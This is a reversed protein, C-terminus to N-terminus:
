CQQHAGHRRSTARRSAPLDPVVGLGPAVPQRARGLRRPHRVSRARGAASPRLDLPRRRALRRGTTNQPGREANTRILATGLASSITCARSRASRNTRRCVPSSRCRSRTSTASDPSTANTSCAPRWLRSRTANCDARRGRRPRAAGARVPRARPSRRRSGRAGDAAARCGSSRDGDSPREGDVVRRTAAMPSADSGPRRDM